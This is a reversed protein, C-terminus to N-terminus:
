SPQHPRAPPLNPLLRLLPKLSCLPLRLLHHLCLLPLLLRLLCHLRYSHCSPNCYLPLPSRHMLHCPSLRLLSLLRCVLTCPLPLLLLTLLPPPTPSTQHPTPQKSRRHLSCASRTTCTMRTM